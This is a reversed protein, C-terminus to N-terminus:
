NFAHAEYKIVFVVGATRMGDCLRLYAQSKKKDTMKENKKTEKTALAEFGVIRM